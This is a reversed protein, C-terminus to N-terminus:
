PALEFLKNITRGSPDAKHRDAVAILLAGKAQSAGTTDGVWQLGADEAQKAADETPFTCILVDLKDVTGSQCDKGVKTTAPTFASPTLGGKKWAGVLADRAAAGTPPPAKGCAALALAVFLWRM